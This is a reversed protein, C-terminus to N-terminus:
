HTVSHQPSWSICFTYQLPALFFLLLELCSHHLSIISFATRIVRCRPQPIIAHNVWRIRSFHQAEAHSSSGCVALRPTGFIADESHLLNAFPSTILLAAPSIPQPYLVSLFPPFCTIWCLVVSCM